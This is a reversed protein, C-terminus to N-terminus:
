MLSFWSKAETALTSVEMKKILVLWGAKKQHADYHQKQKDQVITTREAAKRGKELLDEILSPILAVEGSLLTAEGRRIM